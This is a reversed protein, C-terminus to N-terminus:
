EGTPVPRVDGRRVAGDRGPGAPSRAQVPFTFVGHVAPHNARYEADMSALPSLAAPALDFEAWYLGSAVVYDQTSGAKLFYVTDGDPLPGLNDDLTRREAEDARRLHLSGLYASCSIREVGAFLLDLVRMPSGGPADDDLEPLGRVVAYTGHGHRVDALSFRRSDVIEDADSPIPRM